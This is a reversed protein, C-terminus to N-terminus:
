FDILHVAELAVLHGSAIRCNEPTAIVRGELDRPQDCCEGSDKLLCSVTAAPIELISAQRRTCHLCLCHSPPLPRTVLRRPLGDIEWIEKWQLNKVEEKM